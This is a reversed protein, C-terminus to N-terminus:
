RYVTPPPFQAHKLAVLSRKLALSTSAINESVVNSELPGLHEDEFHSMTIAQRFGVSLAICGQPEDCDQTIQSLSSVRETLDQLTMKLKAELKRDREKSHYENALEFIKDISDCLSDSSKAIMDRRAKDRERNKALSNAVMWGVIVLVSPISLKGLEIWFSCNQSEM